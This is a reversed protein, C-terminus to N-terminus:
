GKQKSAQQKLFNDAEIDSDFVMCTDCRETHPYYYPDNPDNIGIAEVDIYYGLGDCDECKSAQESARKNTM